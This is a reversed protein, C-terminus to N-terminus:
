ADAARAIELLRPQVTTGFQKLSSHGVPHEEIQVGLQFHESAAKLVQTTASTIEPGIGDGPLVVMRM